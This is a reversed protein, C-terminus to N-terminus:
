TTHLELDDLRNCALVLSNFRWNQTNIDCQDTLTLPAHLIANALALQQTRRGYLYVFCFFRFTGTAQTKHAHIAHTHNQTNLRHTHTLLFINM